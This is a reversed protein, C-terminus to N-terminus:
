NMWFSMPARLNMSLPTTVAAGAEGQPSLNCSMYASFALKVGTAFTLLVCGPTKRDDFGKAALLAADNPVWLSTSAVVIPSRNGPIQFDQDTHITPILIQAAEGGSPTFNQLTSAQAGFTIEEATGSVFDDFLTSDIGELTFEDTTSASVRVVRYNLQTMGVIRLLLYDGNSYGHATSDAVAPSAKSIDTITKPAALLTQVAVKVKSWVNIDM